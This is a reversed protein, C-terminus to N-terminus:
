ISISIKKVFHINITQIMASPYYKYTPCIASLLYMYSCALCLTLWM